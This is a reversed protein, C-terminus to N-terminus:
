CKVFRQDAVTQLFMKVKRYGQSSVDTLNGLVGTANMRMVVLKNLMATIPTERTPEPLDIMMSRATVFAVTRAFYHDLRDARREMLMHTINKQGCNVIYEVLSLDMTNWVSLLQMYSCGNTLDMFCKMMNDRVTDDDIM